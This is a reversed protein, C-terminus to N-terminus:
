SLVFCQLIGISPDNLYFVPVVKITNGEIAEGEIYVDLLEIHHNKSMEKLKRMGFSSCLEFVNGKEDRHLFFGM